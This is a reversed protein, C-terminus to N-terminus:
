TVVCLLIVKEQTVGTELVAHINIRSRSRSNRSNNRSGKNFTSSTTIPVIKISVSQRTVIFLLGKERRKKGGARCM